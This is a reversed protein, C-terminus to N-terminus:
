KQPLSAFPESPKQVGLSPMKKIFEVKQYNTLQHAGLLRAQLQTYPNALLPVEVFDAVLNITAEPLATLM